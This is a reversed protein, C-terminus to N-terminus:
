LAAAHESLYRAVGDPTAQMGASGPKWGAPCVEGYAEHFQLAEVMRVAEDANRGLPLDNIMQHRVVGERDVLFTGRLAVGGETLVGYDRAISKTLDAVMPFGVAGLGGENVPTNRWALHTYQSDISIGVLKTNKDGLAPMRANYALIESPCVFTFDLPWFFVVGYSGALHDSLNFDEVIAGDALVAAATFDPAKRGILTAPRLFETPVSM